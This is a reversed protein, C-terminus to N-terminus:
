RSSGGLMRLTVRARVDVAVGPVRALLACVASSRHVRLDELLQKNSLAGHTVLFDWALNLMWAPVSQPGGTKTRSRATTILVEHPTIEAVVNRAHTPGLTLFVPDRMREAQLVEYLEPRIPEDAPEAAALAQAVSTARPDRWLAEAWRSLEAISHDRRTGELLVGAELNTALGATLNASGVVVRSKAGHEGLYLKPHFSQGGAPNLTKVEVGLHLASNLVEPMAFQFTTTVLLRVPVQRSQLAGLENEILGLGRQHAFAVCLFASDADALTERVSRLFSGDSTTVPSVRV